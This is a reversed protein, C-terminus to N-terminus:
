NPRRLRDLAAFPHPDPEEEVEADEEVALLTMLSASGAKAPGPTVGMSVRQFNAKAFLSHSEAQLCPGPLSYCAFPASM